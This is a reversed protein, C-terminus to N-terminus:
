EKEWEHKPKCDCDHCFCRQINPPKMGAEMQMALISSVVREIPIDGVEKVVEVMKKVMKSRKMQIEMDIVSNKKLM